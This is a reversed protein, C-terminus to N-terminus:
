KTKKIIDDILNQPSIKEAFSKAEIDNDIETMNSKITNYKEIAEKERLLADIQEQRTQIVKQNDVEM